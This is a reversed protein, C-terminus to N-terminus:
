ISGKYADEVLARQRETRQDPHAMLANFLEKDEDTACQCFSDERKKGGCRCCRVWPSRPPRPPYLTAAREELGDQIRMYDHPM